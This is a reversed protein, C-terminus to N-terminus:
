KFSTHVVIIRSPLNHIVVASKPLRLEWACKRLKDEAAPCWIENELLELAEHKPLVVYGDDLIPLM